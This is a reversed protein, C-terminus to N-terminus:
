FGCAKLLRKLGADKLSWAHLFGLHPASWNIPVLQRCAAGGLFCGANSGPQWEKSGGIFPYARPQSSAAGAATKCSQAQRDWVFVANFCLTNHFLQQLM